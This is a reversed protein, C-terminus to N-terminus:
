GDAKITGPRIKRKGNSRIISKAGAPDNKRNFENLIVRDLSHERNYKWSRYVIRDSTQYEM